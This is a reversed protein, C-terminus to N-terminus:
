NQLGLHMKIIHLHIIRHKWSNTQMKSHTVDLQFLRVSKLGKIMKNADRKCKKGKVHLKFDKYIVNDNFPM